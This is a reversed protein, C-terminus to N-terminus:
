DSRTDRPTSPISDVFPFSVHIVALGGPAENTGDGIAVALTATLAALLSFLLLPVVAWLSLTWSPGRAKSQKPENGKEKNNLFGM